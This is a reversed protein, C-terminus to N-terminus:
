NQKAHLCKSCSTYIPGPKFQVAQVAGPASANLILGAVAIPLGADVSNALTAGRLKRVSNYRAGALCQLENEEFENSLGDKLNDLIVKVQEPTFM